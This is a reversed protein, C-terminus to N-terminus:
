RTEGGIKKWISAPIQERLLTDFQYAKVMGEWAPKTKLIKLLAKLDAVDKAPLTNKSKAIRNELPKREVASLRRPLGKLEIGYYAKGQNARQNLYQHVQNVSFLAKKILQNKQNFIAYRRQEGIPKKSPTVVKKRM